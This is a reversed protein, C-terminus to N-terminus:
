LQRGAQRVGLRRGVGEYVWVAALHSGRGEGCQGDELEEQKRGTFSSTLACVGPAPLSVTGEPECGNAGGM